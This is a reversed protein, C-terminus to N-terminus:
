RRDEQRVVVEMGRGATRRMRCHSVILCVILGLDAALATWSPVWLGLRFQFGWLYGLLFAGGLAALAAWPRRWRARTELHGALLWSALLTLVLLPIGLVFASSLKASDLVSEKVLYGAAALLGCWLLSGKIWGRVAWALAGAFAGAMIALVAASAIAVYGAVALPEM